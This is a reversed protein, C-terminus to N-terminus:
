LGAELPCATQNPPYSSGQSVLLIVRERQCYQASHSMGRPTFQLGEFFSAIQPESGSGLRIRDAPM